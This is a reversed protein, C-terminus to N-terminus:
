KSKQQKKVYTKYYFDGFLIMMFLYQPVMVYAPWKPYGCDEWFLQMYHLLIIFFQVIQLQTIYKKWSNTDIKMSTMLYHTYMITHVFTNLLGSIIYYLMINCYDLLQLIINFNCLYENKNINKKLKM